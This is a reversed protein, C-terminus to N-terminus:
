AGAWPRNNPLRGGAELFRKLCADPSPHNEEGVTTYALAPCNGACYTIYDCGGCFDFDGLSTSRRERLRKLESHNQWVGKLDDRNIRGLEIHSMQICPVLVGDARVDIKNMIGGCSTLFGRGPISKKGSRRAEEMELWNEAEALPGASASIRGKYRSKLRLLTEMAFSREDVTLQVKQADHRCRGMHSAANTSFGSLGIEELLLKATDELHRVNQRHITVRVPVPVSHKQLCKIGDIAKALSGEGRFIDHTGPISGDISIQVGDCRGTSGLFAAIENTILTGNSLINFRMRNRVIGEILDGLDERCFPEGGEITVNMVANRALEEFFTLWEQTPLDQGVDGASTFHSCYTCRLNCRSTIALEVSRPTNMLNM